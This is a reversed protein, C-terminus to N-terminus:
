KNKKEDAKLGKNTSLMYHLNKIEKSLIYKGFSDLTNMDNLANKIDELEYVLYNIHKPNKQSQIYIQKLKRKVDFYSEM